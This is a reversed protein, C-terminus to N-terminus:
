WGPWGSKGASFLVTSRGGDPRMSLSIITHDPSSRRTRLAAHKTEVVLTSLSLFSTFPAFSPSLRRLVGEDVLPSRKSRHWHHVLTVRPHDPGGRPIAYDDDTKGTVDDVGLIVVTSVLSRHERRQPWSTAERSLDSAGIRTIPAGKREPLLM